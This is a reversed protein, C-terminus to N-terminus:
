TAPFAGPFQAKAKQLLDSEGSAGLVVSLQREATAAQNQATTAKEEAQERGASGFWYGLAITLLPLMAHLLDSARQYPDVINGSVDKTVGASIHGTVLFLAWVVLAFLAGTILLRSKM